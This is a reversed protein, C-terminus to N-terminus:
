LCKSCRRNTSKKWFKTSALFRTRRSSCEGCVPTPLFYAPEDIASGAKVKSENEHDSSCSAATPWALDVDFTHDCDDCSYWSKYFIRGFYHETGPANMGGTHPASCTPCVNMVYIMQRLACTIKAQSTLHTSADDAASESQVAPSSSSPRSMVKEGKNPGALNKRGSKNTKKSHKKVITRSQPRSKKNRAKGGHTFLRNCQNCLYRPQKWNGNNYYRFQMDVDTYHCHLCQKEAGVLHAPEAM